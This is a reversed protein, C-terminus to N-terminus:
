QYKGKTQNYIESVENSSLGRNYIRVDDLYGDTITRFGPSYAGIYEARNISPFPATGTLTKTVGFQVGNRYAKLTKNAYDCVTIIHM